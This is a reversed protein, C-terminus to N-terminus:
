ANAKEEAQAETRRIQRVTRRLAAPTMHHRYQGDIIVVPGLACAGVCNVREVTFLGDPTTMGPEVGLQNELEHLLLPAGRVHCATGMCVTCMHRGRPRLSLAKYFTAVGYVSMLPVSLAQAIRKMADEAVYGVADQVDLLVEILQDPRGQRQHLIQELADAPM